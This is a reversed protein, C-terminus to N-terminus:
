TKRETTARDCSPARSSIITGDERRYMQRWGDDIDSWIREKVVGCGACIRVLRGYQSRREPGWTHRSARTMTRAEM